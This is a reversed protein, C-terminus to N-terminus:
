ARAPSIRRLRAVSGMPLSLSPFSTKKRSSHGEASTYVALPGASKNAARERACVLAVLTSSSASDQIVGSFRDSLGVMQRVWGVAVEELETRIAKRVRGSDHARRPMATEDKESPHRREEGKKRRDEEDTM